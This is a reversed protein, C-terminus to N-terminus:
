VEVWAPSSGQGVSDGFGALSDALFEEPTSGPLRYPFTAYGRDVTLRWDVRSSPEEPRGGEPEAASRDHDIAIRLARMGDRPFPYEDALGAVLSGIVYGPGLSEALLSEIRAQPRPNRWAWLYFWRAWGQFAETQRAGIQGFDGRWRDPPLEDPRDPLALFPLQGWGTPIEAVEFRERVTHVVQEGDEYSFTIRAVPRGVPDGDRIRSSLLRHAFVLHHARLGVTLEAERAGGDAALHVLCRGPEPGLEFPLGRLLLSGAPPRTPDPILGVPANAAEALPVSLYDPAADVCGVM